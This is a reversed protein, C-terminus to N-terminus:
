GDGRHVALGADEPQDRSRVRGKDQCCSTRRPRTLGVVDMVKNQRGGHPTVVDTSTLSKGDSWKVGKALQLTLTKNGHEVEVPSRGV